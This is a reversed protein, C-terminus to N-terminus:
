RVKVKIYSGRAICPAFDRGRPCSSRAFRRPDGPPHDPKSNVSVNTSMESGKIQSEVLSM